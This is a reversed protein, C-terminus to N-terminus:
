SEKDEPPFPKIQGNEDVLRDMKKGVSELKDHCYKSLSMGQQFLDIAKELPVDNEELLHVIQELKGMAEEFSLKQMEEPDNPRNTSENMDDHGVM